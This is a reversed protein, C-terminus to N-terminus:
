SLAAAPMAANPRRRLATRAYRQFPLELWRYTLVALVLCILPIAALCAIRLGLGSDALRTQLLWLSLKLPVYHILYLSFSIRGLWLAPRSALVANVAGDQYALAFILGCFGFVVFMNAAPVCLTAAIVALSAWALWGGGGTDRLQFCRAMCTGAIFGFLMRILGFTGTPSDQTHHGVVLLVMLVALSLVALGACLTASQRRMLSRALLPFLAYGFVEASLSWAPGNWEGLKLVTWTQALFLSQVFGAASFDNAHYPIPVGHDMRFWDVMGPLWLALPVLALLVATNLPYVRFFRLTYFRRLTGPAPTHFERGHVHMLIFGSLVFFLDVGRFGNYLFANGAISTSHLYGAMVAQYHTLFVWVAAVGRIGTLSGISANRAAPSGLPRPQSGASRIEAEM